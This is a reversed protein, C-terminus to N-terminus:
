TSHEIIIVALLTRMLRSAALFSTEDEQEVGHTGADHYSYREAAERLQDLEFSVKSNM